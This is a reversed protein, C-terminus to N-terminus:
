RTTRRDGRTRRPTPWILPLPLQRARGQQGPERGRTTASPAPPPAPPPRPHRVVRLPLRYQGDRGLVPRHEPWGRVLPLALQRARPRGRSSTPPPASLASSSVSSVPLRRTRRLGPLPLRYQGNPGPVPRNEPWDQGLPLGLQRGRRERRPSAGSAAPASSPGTAAASRRAPSRRRTLGTLPLMLQGDRRARVYRYPDTASPTHVPGTPARAPRPGPGSRAATGLRSRIGAGARAGLLSGVVGGIGRGVGRGRAIGATAALPGGVAGLGATILATSILGRLLGGSKASSGTATRLVWAPIKIMLYLLAIVVLLNLLSGPGTMGAPLGFGGFAGSGPGGPTLLVRAILALLLGHLTPITLTAAFTRWWLWAIPETQPLAHLCLALPALVTLLLLVAAIVLLTLVLLITIVTIVGFLIVLFTPGGTVTAGILHTLIDQPRQNNGAVALALAAALHTLTTIVWWSLNATIWGAALRPAIHKLAYRTQVTEHGLLTIGGALVFVVYLTNAITLSDAWLQHIQTAASLRTPDMLTAALQTAPLVAGAVLGSLWGNVANQM